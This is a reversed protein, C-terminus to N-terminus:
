PVLYLSINIINKFTNHIFTLILNQKVLVLSSHFYINYPVVVSGIIGILQNAEISSCNECWPILVGKVVELQDPEVRIYKMYKLLLNSWENELRTFCFSNNIKGHLSFRRAHCLHM